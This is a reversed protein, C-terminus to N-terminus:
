IDEGVDPQGKVRRRIVERQMEKKFGTWFGKEYEGSHDKPMPFETLLREIEDAIHKIDRSSLLASNKKIFDRCAGPMYSYRGYSYQVTALCLQYFDPLFDIEVTLCEEKWEPIGDGENLRNEYVWEEFADKSPFKWFRENRYCQTFEGESALERVARKKWYEGPRRERATRIISKVSMKGVHDKFVDEKLSDGYAVIIRAIGM